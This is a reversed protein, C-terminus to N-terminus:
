IILIQKTDLAKATHCLELSQTAANTLQSFNPGFLFNGIYQM